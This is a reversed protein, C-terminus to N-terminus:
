SEGGAVFALGYDAGQTVNVVPGFDRAAMRVLMGAAAGGFVFMGWIARHPARGAEGAQFVYPLLDVAEQVIWGGEALAGDVAERWAAEAVAPGMVVERGGVSLGKKLVLEARGARVLRLLDVERGRRVTTGPRVLRTWPVTAQILAREEASFRPSDAHESLLALNRKDGLILTAPGTLLMLEGAKFARYLDPPNLAPNQEIVAHFRRGGARLPGSWSEVAEPPAVLVDGDVRPALEALADRLATRYAAAPHTPPDFPPAGAVVLVNLERDVLGPRALCSAVAHRLLRRPTDIWSPEGGAEAFFPALPEAAALFPSLAPAQWAGLNGANWELCRPGEETDVFDGRCITEALGSPEALLLKAMPRSGLDYFDALAEPDSGFFREPLSRMLRDLGVAVRALESWREASFLIPWPQLPFADTSVGLLRPMFRRMRAFVPAFTRRELLEPHAEVHDLFRRATASLRAQVARDAASFPLGAAAGGGAPGPRVVAVRELRRISM